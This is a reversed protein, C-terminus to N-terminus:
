YNFFITIIRLKKVKTNQVKLYEKFTIELRAKNNKDQKEGSILEEMSLEFIESLLILDDVKIYRKGKEIKNIKTRDCFLKDALIEQSWKKEERMKKIFKGIKECDMQM